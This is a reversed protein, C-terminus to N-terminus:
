PQLEQLGRRAGELDPDLRLAQEYATVADDTRELRKLITARRWWGYARDDDDCRTCHELYHEACELGRELGVSALAAARARYYYAQEPVAQSVLAEDLLTLRGRRLLKHGRLPLLTLERLKGESLVRPEPHRDIDRPCWPRLLPGIARELRAALEIVLRRRQAESLGAKNPFVVLREVWILDVWHLLGEEILLEM